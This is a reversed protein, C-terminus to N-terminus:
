LRGVEQRLAEFVDNEWGIGDALGQSVAEDGAFWDGETDLIQEITMGRGQAVVSAFIQRTDEIWKDIKDLTEQDWKEYPGGRAKRDGARRMAVEIGDKEFAGVYNVLAVWVGISGTMGTPTAWVQDCVSGLAYAASCMMENSFAWIPKGGRRASGDFIETALAFCGSVEGGPSDIDLLIGRVHKDNRAERIKRSIQNYGVMGSWPDLGGVKQVLTGDVPITAIGDVLEYFRTQPRDGMLEDEAKQKLAIAGLTTGDLRSFKTIGMHDLMAACIMEAKAPEIMVPQNFMRQSLRALDRM